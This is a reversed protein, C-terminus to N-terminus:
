NSLSTKIKKFFFEEKEAKDYKNSDFSNNIKKNILKLMIMIQVNELDISYVKFKEKSHSVLKKRPVIELYFLKHTCNFLRQSPKKM